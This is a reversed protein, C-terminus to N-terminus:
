KGIYEQSFRALAKKFCDLPACVLGAGIQEWHLAAWISFPFILFILAQHLAGAGSPNVFIYLSVLILLALFILGEIRRARNWFRPSHYVWVLIVPTIVLCGLLNGIFWIMWLTPFASLPVNNYLTLTAVGIM